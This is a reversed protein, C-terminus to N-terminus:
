AANKHLEVVVIWAFKRLVPLALFLIRDAADLGRCLWSQLGRHSIAAAAVSLLNFYRVEVRSFVLGFDDIDKMLLPHEDDTRLEPTRRRYANILPNHGLPEMFVARGGPKLVRFVEHVAKDLDLHHLIGSGCVLDFQDDGFALEEANMALFEINLGLREAQEAAQHLGVESLDIATVRAGKGAIPFAQSEPGCGIELVSSGATVEETRGRYWAFAREAVAYRANAKHRKASAFAEDHFAKERELRDSDPKISMM